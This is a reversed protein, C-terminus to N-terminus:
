PSERLKLDVVKELEDLRSLRGILAIQEDLESMWAVLKKVLIQPESQRTIKLASLLSKHQILPHLENQSDDADV